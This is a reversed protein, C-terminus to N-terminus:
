IWAEFDKKAILLQTDKRLRKFESKKIKAKSLKQLEEDSVKPFLSFNINMPQYNEKEERLFNYLSGLASTRPPPSFTQDNLKQIIFKAVLLGINTSDFYGEVGTIQGAFYINSNKKSSLDDNLLKPSNIYMNRHISGLKVFEANELGPIMTFIRKQEPYAMKTQFGVMNYATGEKNDQRLQVVAYCGQGTRPNRLGKYSLPGFRLTDDGRNIIEEIPMCNEFFITDKEFEKPEIKRAGKIAEILNIYHDRDLPCNIYDGVSGDGWRDAKWCIDMNISETEVIPAIADFFYLSNLDFHAQMSEALKSDTLPGTAFVTIGPLEDISEVVHDICEINPHNKIVETLESAFKERDVSLSMGAPVAYKQAIKLIISNQKEAEWKLQGPASYETQSGFSNSCVLEGFDKSKHAPTLKIRRMEYLKVKLGHEALQYACESGALGGGVVNVTKANDKFKEMPGKMPRKITRRVM